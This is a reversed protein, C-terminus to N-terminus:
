NKIEQEMAQMFDQVRLLRCTREMRWKEEILAKMDEDDQDSGHISTDQFAKSAPYDWRILAEAVVNDKGTIYAVTLEVKSM